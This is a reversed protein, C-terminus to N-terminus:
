FVVVINQTHCFDQGYFSLNIKERSVFNWATGSPSLRRIYAYTARKRERKGAWDVLGEDAPCLRRATVM